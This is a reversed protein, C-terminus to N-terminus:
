DIEHIVEEKEVAKSGCEPCEDLKEINKDKILLAPLCGTCCMMKKGANQLTKGKNEIKHKKYEKKDYFWTNGCNKCEFKIEKIKKSM